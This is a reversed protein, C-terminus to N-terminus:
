RLAGGVPRFTQGAGGLMNVLNPSLASGGLERIRGAIYSMLASRGGSYTGIPAAFAMDVLVNDGERVISFGTHAVSPYDDAVRTWRLGGEVLTPSGDATAQTVARLKDPPVGFAREVNTGFGNRGAWHRLFDDLKNAPLSFMWRVETSAGHLANYLHAIRSLDQGMSAVRAGPALRVFRQLLEMVASM